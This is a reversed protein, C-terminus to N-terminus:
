HWSLEVLDEGPKELRLVLLVPDADLREGGGIVFLRQAVIHDFGLPEGVVLAVHAHGHLRRGHDSKVSFRHRGDIDSRASRQDQHHYTLGKIKRHFM